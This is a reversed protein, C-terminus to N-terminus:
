GKSFSDSEKGFSWCWKINGGPTYLELKEMDKGVSKITM